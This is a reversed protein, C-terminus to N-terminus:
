IIQKLIRNFFSTHMCFIQIAKSLQIINSYSIVQQIGNGKVPYIITISALTADYSSSPNLSNYLLSFSLPNLSLSSSIDTSCSLNVSSAVIIIWTHMRNEKSLIPSLSCAKNVYIERIGFRFNSKTFAFLHNPIFFFLSKIFSNLVPRNSSTVM